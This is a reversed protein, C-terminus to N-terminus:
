SQRGQQEGVAILALWHAMGAAVAAGGWFLPKPPACRCRECRPAAPPNAAVGKTGKSGACLRLLGAVTSCDISISKPWSTLPSSTLHLLALQTHLHTHAHAGTHVGGPTSSHVHTSYTRIMQELSQVRMRLSRSDTSTRNLLHMTLAYKSPTLPHAPQKDLSQVSMGRTLTLPVSGARHPVHHLLPISTPAHAHARCGTHACAVASSTGESTSASPSSPASLVRLGCASDSHQQPAGPQRAAQATGGGQTPTIHPRMQSTWQMVSNIYPRM